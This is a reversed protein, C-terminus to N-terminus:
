EGEFEKKFPRKKGGLNVFSLSKCEEHVLDGEHRQKQCKQDLKWEFCRRREPNHSSVYFCTKGTGGKHPITHTSHLCCTNRSLALVTVVCPSFMAIVTAGLAVSLLVDARCSVMLLAM